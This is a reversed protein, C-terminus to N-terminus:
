TRTGLLFRAVGDEENSGIIADAVAKLEDKANKMAYKEDCARFLSLDNFNDGFGVIREFGYQERLFHVANEKSAGTSFIELYWADPGYICPYLSCLIGPQAAIFERLPELAERRDVLTCYITNKQRMCSFDEVQEFSKYYKRRREEYFDVMLQSDLRTYCTTLQGDEIAYLFGNNGFRVLAELIIDVAAAGLPEIRSYRQQPWDYILVGNMLVVPLNIDVAQMIKIASAATRATAFSFALGGRILENLTDRSFDSLEAQRNLLTGDLDSIYLTKM